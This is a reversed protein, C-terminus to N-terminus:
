AGEKTAAKMQVTTIFRSNREEEHEPFLVTKTFCNIYVRNFELWNMGPIADIQSLTLCVLDIGFHKGYITLPCNRCALATTVSGNAPTDIVMRGLMSISM